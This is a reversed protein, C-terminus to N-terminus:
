RIRRLCRFHTITASHDDVFVIGVNRPGGGTKFRVTVRCGRGHWEPRARGVYRHTAPLSPCEHIPM